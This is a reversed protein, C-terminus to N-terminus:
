SKGGLKFFAFGNCHSGTVSKAVASLSGFTEGDFEFGDAAVTM